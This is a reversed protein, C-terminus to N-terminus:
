IEKFPLIESKQATDWYSQLKENTRYQEKLKKMFESIELKVIDRNFSLFSLESKVIDVEAKLYQHSNENEELIIDPFEKFVKNIQNAMDYQATLLTKRFPDNISKLYNGEKEEELKKQKIEQELKEKRIRDSIFEASTKEGNKIKSITKTKVEKLIKNLDDPKERQKHEVKHKHSTVDTKVEELSPKSLPEKPTGFPFHGANQSIKNDKNIETQNGKTLNKFSNAMFPNKPINELEESKSMMKFGTPVEIEKSKSEVNSKEFLKNFPQNWSKNEGDSAKLGASKEDFSIELHDIQFSNNCFSAKSNFEQNLDFPIKEEEEEQVEESSEKPLINNSNQIDRFYCEFVDVRGSYSLTIIKKPFAVQM